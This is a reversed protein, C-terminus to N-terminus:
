KGENEKERIWFFLRCAAEAAALLVLGALVFKLFGGALEVATDIM